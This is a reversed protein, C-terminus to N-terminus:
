EKNADLPIYVVISKKSENYSNPKTRCNAYEIKYDKYSMEVKRVPTDRLYCKSCVYEEHGRIAQPNDVESDLLWVKEKHGCKRLITKYPM